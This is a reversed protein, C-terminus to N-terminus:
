EQDESSNEESPEEESFENETTDPVESEPEMEPDIAVETTESENVIEEVVTASAAFVPEAITSCFLASALVLSLIRKPPKM